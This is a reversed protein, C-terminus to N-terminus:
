FSKASKIGLMYIVIYMFYINYIIFSVAAVHNVNAGHAILMDVISAHGHKAAITVPTFQDQLLM